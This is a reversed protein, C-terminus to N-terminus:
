IEEEVNFYSPDANGIEGFPLDSKPGHKLWGLLGIKSIKELQGAASKYCFRMETLGHSSANGSGAKHGKGQPGVSM